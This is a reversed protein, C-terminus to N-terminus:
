SSSKAFCSHFIYEIMTQRARRLQQWRPSVHWHTMPSSLTHAGDEEHCGYFNPNTPLAIPVRTDELSLFHAWRHHRNMARQTLHRSAVLHSSNVVPALPVGGGPLPCPPPLLLLLHSPSTAL